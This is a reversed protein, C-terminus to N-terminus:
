GDMIRCDSIYTSVLDKFGELEKKSYFEPESYGPCHTKGSRIQKIIFRKSGVLLMAIEELDHAEIIDPNVTTTFEYDIGGRRLLKISEKIANIDVKYRVVESYRNLPAKIDMSIYDLVKEEIMKRIRRPRTGNTDLKIKYGLSKVKYAFKLLGNHLTPEGGGICFGTLYGKVRYLHDLIDREPIKYLEQFEFILKREECFKCRFNCGPVTITACLRGPYNKLSLRQLRVIPLYQRVWRKKPKLGRM